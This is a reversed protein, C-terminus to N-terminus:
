NRHLHYNVGFYISQFHSFPLVGVSLKRHRRFRTSSFFIVRAIVYVSFNSICHNVAAHLRSTKSVKAEKYLSHPSFHNKPIAAYPPSSVAWPEMQRLLMQPILLNYSGFSEMNYLFLILFPLQLCCSWKCLHQGGHFCVRKKEKM